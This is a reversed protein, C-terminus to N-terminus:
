SKIKLDRGSTWRVVLGPRCTSERRKEKTGRKKEKANM